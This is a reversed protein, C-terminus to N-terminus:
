VSVTSMILFLQLRNMSTIHFNATSVKIAVPAKSRTDLAEVVEGYSGRGIMRRLSYVESSQWSALPDITFDDFDSDGDSSNSVSNQSLM